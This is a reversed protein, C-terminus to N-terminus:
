QYIYSNVKNINKIKDNTQPSKSQFVFKRQADYLDGNVASAERQETM